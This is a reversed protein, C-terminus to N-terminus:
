MSVILGDMKLDSASLARHSYRTSAAFAPSFQPM